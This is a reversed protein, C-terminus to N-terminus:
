GSVPDSTSTVSSAFFYLTLLDFIKTPTPESSTIEIANIVKKLESFGISKGSM